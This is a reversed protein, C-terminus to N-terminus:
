AGVTVLAQLIGSTILIGLIDSLGVKQSCNLASQPVSFRCSSQDAIVLSQTPGRSACRRLKSGALTFGAIALSQICRYAVM